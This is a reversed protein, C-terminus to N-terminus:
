TTDGAPQRLRGAEAVVAIKTRMLGYKSSNRGKFMIVWDNDLGGFPVEKRSVADYVVDYSSDRM